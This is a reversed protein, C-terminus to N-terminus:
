KEDLHSFAERVKVGLIPRLRVITIIFKDGSIKLDAEFGEEKLRKIADKLSQKLHHDSITESWGFQTRFDNIFFVIESGNAKHLRAILWSYLDIATYQRGLRHILNLDIPISSCEFFHDSVVIYAPHTKDEHDKKEDLFLGSMESIILEGKSRGGNAPDGEVYFIITNHCRLFADRLWKRSKGNDVFGMEDLIKSVKPLMIKPSKYRETLGRIYYLLHRDRGFPLTYNKDVASLRLKAKGNRKEYERLDPQNTQPISCMVLPKAAYSLKQEGLNVVKKKRLRKQKQTVQTNEAQM